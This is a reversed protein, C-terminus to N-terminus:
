GNEYNKYFYLFSRIIVTHDFVAQSLPPDIPAAVKQM